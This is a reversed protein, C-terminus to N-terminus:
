SSLNYNIGGLVRLICLFLYGTKNRMVFGFLQSGPLEPGLLCLQNGRRGTAPWPILDSLAVSLQEAGIVARAARWTVALAWYSCLSSLSTIRLSLSLASTASFSLSGGRMLLRSPTMHLDRPGVVRRTSAVGERETYCGIKSRFTFLSRRYSSVFRGFFLMNVLTIEFVWSLLYLFLFM